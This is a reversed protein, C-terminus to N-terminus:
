ARATRSRRWIKGIGIWKAREWGWSEGQAEAQDYKRKNSNLLDLSNNFGVVVLAKRVRGGGVDAPVSYAICSEDAATQIEAPDTGAAAASAADTPGPNMIANIWLLETPSLDPDHSEPEELVPPWFKPPASDDWAEEMGDEYPQGTSDKSLMGDADTRPPLLRRAGVRIRLRQHPLHTQPDPYKDNVLDLWANAGPNYARLKTDSITFCKPTDTKDGKHVHRPLRRRDFKNQYNEKNSLYTTYDVFPLSEGLPQLQPSSESSSDISVTSPTDPFSTMPSNFEPSLPKTYFTRQSSSGGSIWERRAEVILLDGTKEDVRLTLDSWLDNIPGETHQRRWVRKRTEMTDESPCELPYRVCHYCSTYDLGELLRQSSVAYFHGRYVRFTVTSDIKSGTFKKPRIKPELEGYSTLSITTFCWERSGEEDLSHIGYVLHSRNHRVFLKNISQLPVVPHRVQNRDEGASLDTIVLWASVENDLEKVQCLCVLIDDSYSLLSFKVGSLHLIPELGVDLGQFQEKVLESLYLVREPATPDYIDLLRINGESM